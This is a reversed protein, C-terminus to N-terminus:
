GKGPLAGQHGSVLRWASKQQTCKIWALAIPAWSNHVHQVHLGPRRTQMGTDTHRGVPPSIASGRREGSGQSWVGGRGLQVGSAQLSNPRAEPSPHPAYTLFEGEGVQRNQECAPDLLAQRICPVRVQIGPPLVLSDGEM